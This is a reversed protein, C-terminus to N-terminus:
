FLAFLSPLVSAIGGIAGMLGGGGSQETTGTSVNTGGPIMAGMGMLQQAIMAPWQSAMQEQMYAEQAQQSELAYRQDGVASRAMEPMMGLQAMGPALAQGKLMTGLGTQYADSAMRSAVGGSERMADEMILNEALAGRTGSYQGAGVAAGRAEPLLQERTARMIPDIAFNISEKLYPNSNPDLMRPDTLFSNSAMSRNAFDQMQPLMGLINQQAAQQTPNFGAIATGTPPAPPNEAYPKLFNKYALDFVAQQQPSM